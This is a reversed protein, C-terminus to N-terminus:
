SSDCAMILRGGVEVFAAKLQGGTKKRQEETPEYWAETPKAMFVHILWGRGTLAKGRLEHATV